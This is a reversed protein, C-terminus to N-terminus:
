KTTLENKTIFKQIWKEAEETTVKGDVSPILNNKIYNYGMQTPYEKGVIRDNLMKIVRYPTLLETTM